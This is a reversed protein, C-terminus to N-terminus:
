TPLVRPPAVLNLFVDELTADSHGAKARLEQL